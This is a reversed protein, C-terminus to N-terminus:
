KIAHVLVRYHYCQINYGGAGISEIKAKGKDGVVIGNLTGDIGIKLNSVDNIEGTIPTVKDVLENYRAEMYEDLYRLFGQSGKELRVRVWPIERYEHRKESVEHYYAKYEEETEFRKGPGVLSYRNNHLECSERDLEYYKEVRPTIWSIIQQKWNEFFDKFIQIVPRADLEKLLELRNYYTQLTNEADELDRNAYVIEKDCNEIWNQYDDCYKNFMQTEDGYYKLMDEKSYHQSYHNYAANSLDRITKILKVEKKDVFWSAKEKLYCELAKKDEWKKIRAQIKTIRVKCKEIRDEYFEIKESSM